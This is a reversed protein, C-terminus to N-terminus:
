FLVPAMATIPAFTVSVLIKLIFALVFYGHIRSEFVLTIFSFLAIACTIHFVDIKYGLLISYLKSALSWCLHKRAFIAFNKLVGIKFFIQSRSSRLTKGKVITQVFVSCYFFM